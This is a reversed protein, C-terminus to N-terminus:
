VTYSNSSLLKGEEDYINLEIACGKQAKIVGVIQASHNRLQIKSRKEEKIGDTNTVRWEVICNCPHKYDNVAYVKCGNEISVAPSEPWEMMIHIPSYSKKVIEYAKKKGYYYDIISDTVAPLCDKFHFLLCGNIPDFKHRRFTEIYFKLMKAQYSQTKEIFEHIDRSNSPKLAENVNYLHMRYNYRNWIKINIERDDPPWM